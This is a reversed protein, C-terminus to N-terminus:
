TSYRARVIVEFDSGQRGRTVRRLFLALARLIFGPHIEGLDIRRQEWSHNEDASGVDALGGEEVPSRIKTM